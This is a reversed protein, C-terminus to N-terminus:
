APEQSFIKINRRTHIVHRTHPLVGRWALSGVRHHLGSLVPRVQQCATLRCQVCAIHGPCAGMKGGQTGYARIVGIGQVTQGAHRQRGSPRIKGYGKGAPRQLNRRFPRKMFHQGTGQQRLPVPLSRASGDAKGAQPVGIVRGGMQGTGLDHFGRPSHPVGRPCKAMRGAQRAPPISVGAPKIGTKQPPASLPHRGYGLHAM